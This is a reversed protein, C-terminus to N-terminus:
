NIRIICCFIPGIFGWTLHSAITDLYAYKVRKRREMWWLWWRGPSSLFGEASKYELLMLHIARCFLLSCGLWHSSRWLLPLIAACVCFSSVCQLVGDRGRCDKGRENCTPAFTYLIPGPHWSTIHHGLGIRISGEVVGVVVVVRGPPSLHGM